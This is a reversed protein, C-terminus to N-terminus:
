IRRSNEVAAEKSVVTKLGIKRDRQLTGCGKKGTWGKTWRTPVAYYSGLGGNKKKPRTIGKRRESFM